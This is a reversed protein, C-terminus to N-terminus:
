ELKNGKQFDAKLQRGDCNDLKPVMSDQCRLAQGYRAKLGFEQGIVNILHEKLYYHLKAGEVSWPLQLLIEVMPCHYPSSFCIVTVHLKIALFM